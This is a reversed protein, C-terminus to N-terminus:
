AVGEDVAQLAVGLAMMMLGVYLALLDVSSAGQAVAVVFNVNTGFLWPVTLGAVTPTHWDALLLVGFGFEFIGALVFVPALPVITTPWLSAFLPAFYAQYVPPALVKYGGGILFSLGLGWRLVRASWGAYPGLLGDTRDLLGQQSEM